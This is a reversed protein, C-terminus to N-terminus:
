LIDIDPIKRLEGPSDSSDLRKILDEYHGRGKLYTLLTIATARDIPTDSRRRLDNPLEITYYGKFEEPRETYSDLLGTLLEEQRRTVLYSSSEDIVSEIGHILGYIKADSEHSMPLKNLKQMRFIEGLIRGLLAKLEQDM